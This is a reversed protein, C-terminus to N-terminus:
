FVAEFAGKIQRLTFEPGAGYVEVVDFRCPCGLLHRQRLFVAAVRSIKQQKFYNVAAAPRGCRMTRRTKVEVFVVTDGDRAIIDIEGLVVRYNRAMISYGARQLYEAAAQEGANGIVKNDM